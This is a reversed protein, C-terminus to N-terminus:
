EIRKISLCIYQKEKKDWSIYDHQQKKKKLYLFEIFDIEGQIYDNQKNEQFMTM